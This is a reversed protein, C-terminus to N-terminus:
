EKTGKTLMNLIIEDLREVLHNRYVNMPLMRRVAILTTPDNNQRVIDENHWVESNTMALETVVRYFDDVIDNTGSCIANGREPTITGLGSRMEMLHWEAIANEICSVIEMASVEDSQIDPLFTKNHRLYLEDIREILDNRTQNLPSFCKIGDIVEDDIPSWMRDMQHWMETNVKVLEQIVAEKDDTASDITGKDNVNSDCHWKKIGREILTIIDEARLNTEM